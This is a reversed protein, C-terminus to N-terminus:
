CRPGYIWTEDRTFLYTFGGATVMASYHSFVGRKTSRRGTAVHGVQGRRVEEKGCTTFVYPRPLPPFLFM